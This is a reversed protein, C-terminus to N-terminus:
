SSFRSKLNDPRHFYFEHNEPNNCSTTYHSSALKVSPRATKMKVEVSFISAVFEESVKTDLLWM